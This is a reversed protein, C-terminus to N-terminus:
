SGDVRFYCVTDFARDVCPQDQLELTVLLTPSTTDLWTVELKAPAGTHKEFLFTQDGTRTGEVGDLLLRLQPEAAQDAHLQLYIASPGLGSGALDITLARKSPLYIGGTTPYPAGDVTCAAPHSVCHDALVLDGCQALEADCVETAGASTSCGPLGAVLWLPALAALSLRRLTSM